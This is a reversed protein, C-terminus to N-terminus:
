IRQQSINQPALDARTLIRRVLARLSFLRNERCVMNVKHIKSEATMQYKGDINAWTLSQGSHLLLLKPSIVAIFKHCNCATPRIPSHTAHVTLIRHSSSRSTTIGVAQAESMPEFWTHRRQSTLKSSLIHGDHWKSYSHTTSQGYSWTLRWACGVQIEPGRNVLFVGDLPYLSGM